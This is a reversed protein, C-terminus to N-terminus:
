NLKRSHKAPKQHKTSAYSAEVFEPCSVDAMNAKVIDPHNTEPKGPEIGRVTSLGSSFKSLNHVILVESTSRSISTCSPSITIAFDRAEKRAYTAQYLGECRPLKMEGHILSFRTATNLPRERSRPSINRTSQGNM